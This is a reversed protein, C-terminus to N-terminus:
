RTKINLLKILVLGAITAAAVGIGAKWWSSNDGAFSAFHKLHPFAAMTALKVFVDHKNEKINFSQPALLQYKNCFVEPQLIYEQRTILHDGKTGVILVPIHSEAFYKIYIRAIYEFSRSATVDYVLCAVDCNVEHPQLPDSVRTIPIEKLVLYKEQGYVLVTNICCNSETSSGDGREHSHPKIKKHAIGLFSRCISTKGCSRPGIIHCQYVNRSSQKKAIDVKKDRTIHIASKQTDNEIFNYGLYALYASTSQLDLLTMLTWRCMWGQPTVYGKENTPVTYRLNHWPIRPCCSFVNKLETPNLMGDRDKDYKEFLQTLFQQGKYSLESTCGIPVKINAYLYNHTLELSEDYGFKRLVTWTTENRGRQIFLCHLFIFGKMTICENEIGGAINQAIVSKVEDLVQLQLPTDFCKKQFITIEYDDLLGDGDIDCIKFIRTLAKKCRETLEQEEISYIPYVPHLVAKQANYFMESVNTLTKASCEICRDVEPYEEAIDWINDVVSYDILDIKNGVLIVPKRYDEPCNDRVFPLWYSAIRNLTEQRDVSFVICIVHAKEIEEAVQELTQETLCIDIINTPVQEPTVDAPITIEEAKPPVNEAFEETVLSLILSTKGVGPEGLLIIRVTRPISEFVM